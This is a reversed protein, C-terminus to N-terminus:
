ALDKCRRLSRMRYNIIVNTLHANVEVCAKSICETASASAVTLQM